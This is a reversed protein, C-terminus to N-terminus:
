VTCPSGTAKPYFECAAIDSEEERERQLRAEGQVRTEGFWKRDRRRKQSQKKPVKYM